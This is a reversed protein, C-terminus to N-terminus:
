TEVLWQDSRMKFVTCCRPGRVVAFVFFQDLTWLLNVWMIGLRMSRAYSCLSALVLNHDSSSLHVLASRYLIIWPNDVTLNLVNKSNLWLSLVLPCERFKCLFHTRVSRLCCKKESLITLLHFVNLSSMTEDEDNFLKLPFGCHYHHTM